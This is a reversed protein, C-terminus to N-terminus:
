RALELTQKVLAVLLVEEIEFITLNCKILELSDHKLFYRMLVSLRQAENGEVVHLLPQQLLERLGLGVM